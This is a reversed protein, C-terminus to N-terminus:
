INLAATAPDFVSRGDRAHAIEHCSRCLSVFHETRYSPLLRPQHRLHAFVGPEHRGCAQCISHDRRVGADRAQASRIKHYTDLAVHFAMGLALRRWRTASLLLLVAPSHFLRTGGHQAPQAQQFYRVAALPNLSRKCLCFWLYHDADILISAAWPGIVTSRFWPYLLAASATSLAVHDRVRM